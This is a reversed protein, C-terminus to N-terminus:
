KLNIPYHVMSINSIHVGRLLKMLLTETQDDRHHATCVVSDTESLESLLKLSESRRWNRATVQLGSTVRMNEPLVRTSIPISYSECCSTM